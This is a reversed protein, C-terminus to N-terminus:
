CNSTHAHTLINSFGEFSTGREILATLACCRKGSDRGATKEVPKTSPKPPKVTNPLLKWGSTEQPHVSVM